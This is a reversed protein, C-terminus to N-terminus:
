LSELHNAPLWRKLRLVAREKWQPNTSVWGAMRLQFSTWPAILRTHQLIQSSQFKYSPFIETEQVHEIVCEKHVLQATAYDEDGGHGPWTWCGQRTNPLRGTKGTSDTLAALQWLYSAACSQLLLPSSLKFHSSDGSRTSMMKMVQNNSTIHSSVYERSMCVTGSSKTCRLYGGWQWTQNTRQPM